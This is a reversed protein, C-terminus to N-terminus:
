PTLMAFGYREYVKKADDSELYALLKQAAPQHPRGAILAVPYRIPPGADVPVRYLAHVHKNALLDSAYVIGVRRPDAAVAALAARVDLAPALRGEVKDWLKVSELWRKAYRGAPVAAPDALVLRDYSTGALDAPVAVHAASDKRAVIVLTNSLLSRRSGPVLLQKAALYDMWKEDASFFIDAKHSSAIQRSLANSGAFNLQIHVGPTRKQYGTALEGLADQLSAAVFVGLEIGDSDHSKCAVLM